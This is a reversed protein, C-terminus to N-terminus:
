ASDYAARLWGVLQDDVDDATAVKVRHSVMGNFGGAELRGGAAADKLKIGVDVRSNTAPQLIAFQKSRRVSVYVKMPVFQVDDGFGQILGVLRDYIPRLAAKAGAYQQEVLADRDDSMSAATGRLRHAILNGYGHGLGHTDTLLKIIEGHKDLGSSRAIEVWEDLSKGTNKLLNAAMAAVDSPLNDAM